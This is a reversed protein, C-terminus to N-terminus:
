NEDVADLLAGKLDGVGFGGRRRDKVGYCTEVMGGMAIFPVIRLQGRPDVGHNGQQEPADLDALALARTKPDLGKGGTRKSQLQCKSAARGVISITQIPAPVPRSDEPQHHGIAEVLDFHAPKASKDAHRERRCNGERTNRSCFVVVIAMMPMLNNPGHRLFAQGRNAGRVAMDLPPEKPDRM